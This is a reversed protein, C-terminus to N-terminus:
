WYAFFEVLLLKGKFDRMSTLKSNIIEETPIKPMKDGVDLTQSFSTATLCALLALTLLSGNKIM